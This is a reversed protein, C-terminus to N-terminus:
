KKEKAPQKPFADTVSKMPEPNNFRPNTNITVREHPKISMGEAFNSMNAPTNGPRRTNKIGAKVKADEYEATRERTRALSAALADPTAMEALGGPKPGPM